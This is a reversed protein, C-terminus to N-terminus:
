TFCILRNYQLALYYRKCAQPFQLVVVFGLKDRKMYGKRSLDAVLVTLLKGLAHLLFLGSVTTEEPKRVRVNRM